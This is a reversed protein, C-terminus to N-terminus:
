LSPQDEGTGAGTCTGPSVHGGPRRRGQDGWLRGVRTAEGEGGALAVVSAASYRRDALTGCLYDEATLRCRETPTYSDATLKTAFASSSVKDKVHRVNEGEEVWVQLHSDDNSFIITVPRGVADDEPPAKGKGKDLPSPSSPEDDSMVTDPDARQKGKAKESPVYRRAGLKRSPTPHAGPPLLPHNEDPSSM